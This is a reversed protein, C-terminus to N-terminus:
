FSGGVRLYLTQPSNYPIASPGTLGTGYGLRFTFGGAWGLVTSLYLEAGTGVLVGQVLDEPGDLENFANGSDVFVRMSLAQAFVPVTSWGRDLRVIPFRYELGALWYRDGIDAGVPFGRVMRFSEPAVYFASDGFSGGLQYNGLFDTSNTTWGAAARMALVHNALWPNVVYERIETTLQLQSFPRLTGGVDDRVYSGLWPALAKGVVSFIRGDETSISYATQQAWSYRWGASLSGLTGRVPIAPRYANTPIDEPALETRHQLEYRGFVWTRNTYPYSVTAATTTRREWYRPDDELPAEFNLSGDENVPADPDLQPIIGYPVAVGSGSVSYVPLYRNLTVSAGWGLFDADTRYSLGGSWGVQRLTDSSSTSLSAQWAPCWGRGQSSWPCLARGGKSPPQTTTQIYPVVYRPALTPLPNYRRPPTSFPYDKEEGFADKVETQEFTDISDSDQHHPRPLPPSVRDMGPLTDYLPDFTAPARRSPGLPTGVWPLPQVVEPAGAVSVESLATDHLLDRPLAGRALWQSHDLELLMVQWGLAHYEQYALLGGDPSISPKTAGTLVNTVQYLQETDLDIAWINPVGSRESTFFLTRGDPSWDPERDNWMDSTLRRVPEGTGADYLWLDRRGDQWVSVAFVDGAPSYRPTSFQTHDSVATLAKRQRDVTLVELQNDQARNTVMLLRSGDPSFDPDRARAGRTLASISKSELDYLYIDSWANFRNVIHTAAYVFAKSDSRWTFNKAGFDQVLKEANDGKGDSMWLQSGERLDYCSWVLKGGDPSFRPAGCSDRPDSLRRAETLGQTRLSAAQATYKETLHARWDKYWKPLQKGFSKRSPLLYPIRGGYTHIFKTWVDEGAHDAIYQIFDQGFLYRLNGGPPRAQLGDLNGLPPFADDLVATRKIMDVFPSRGRGGSTYRTEEFTAFGEVVWWPSLNNTNAVRGVVARAVSVIGHHTDMHLIHTLEHTAIAPGWDEYLSLTSDEQPATVYIVITNYPVVSAYGNATDTRDVLVLETRRRPTWKVEEVMTDYISELEQSFEEALQEESQHFHINFHDTRITRWTLDPDFSAAQATIVGLLTWLM